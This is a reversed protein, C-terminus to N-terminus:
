VLGMVEKKRLGLFIIKKSLFQATDQYMKLLYEVYFQNILRTLRQSWQLDYNIDAFTDGNFVFVCDETAHSIGWSLQVELALMDEEKSFIIETGFDEKSFYDIIYQSKYGISLIVKKFNNKVLHKILIELFPEGNILAMPKPIDKVLPKLRTGLGGALIIAERTM